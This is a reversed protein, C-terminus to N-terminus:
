VEGSRGFKAYLAIAVLVGFVTIIIPLDGMIHTMIDLSQGETTFQSSTAMEMFANSIVPSIAVVIILIIFSIVFFVPHTQIFFASIVAGMMAGGLILLYGFDMVNFVRGVGDRAKTGTSTDSWFDETSLENYVKFSILTAALIVCLIVVVVILDLISGKM